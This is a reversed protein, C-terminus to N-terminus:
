KFWNDLLSSFWNKKGEKETTVANKDDVVVILGEGVKGLGFKERINEELGKDTNLSDIDTVLKEKSNTLEAVKAEAMKKNKSTEELTVLFRIVGWAFFLLLLGLIILVPWSQLINKFGKKEQFNRM